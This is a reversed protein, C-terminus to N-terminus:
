DDLLDGPGFQVLHVRQWARRAALVAEPGGAAVRCAPAVLLGALLGALLGVLLCLVFQSVSSCIATNRRRRASASSGPVCAAPVGPLRPSGDPRPGPSM